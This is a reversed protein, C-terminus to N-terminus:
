ITHIRAIRFVFNCVVRTGTLNENDSVDMSELSRFLGIEDPLSEFDGGGQKDKWVIEKRDRWNNMRYVMDYLATGEQINSFSNGDMNFHTANGMLRLVPKPLACGLKSDKLDLSELNGSDGIEELAPIHQELLREDGLVTAIGKALAAADDRNFLIKQAQKRQLETGTGLKIVNCCVDLKATIVADTAQKYFDSNNFNTSNEKPEAYQKYHDQLPGLSDDSFGLMQMDMKITHILDTHTKKMKATVQEITLDHLNTNLRLEVVLTKHDVRPTGMVELGTLPAFLIEVEAPFQSCWQISAGRDIM